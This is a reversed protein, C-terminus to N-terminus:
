PKSIGTTWEKLGTADVSILYRGGELKVTQRGDFPGAETRMETVDDWIMEDKDINEFQVSFIGMPMLSDPVESAYDVIYVGSELEFPGLADPGEGEFYWSTCLSSANTLERQTKGLLTLATALDGNDIATQAQALLDQSTSISAAMDDSSCAVDDQAISASMTLPFGSIMALAVIILLVRKIM